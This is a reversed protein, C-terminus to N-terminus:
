KNRKNNSSRNVTKEKLDNEGKREAEVRKSNEWGRDKEREREEEGNEKEGGERQRRARKNEEEKGEVGMEGVRVTGPGDQGMM